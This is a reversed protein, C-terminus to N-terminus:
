LTYIEIDSYIPGNSTLISSKIIFSTIDFELSEVNVTKIFDSFAAYDCIGKIRAITVHTVFPRSEPAFLGSLADDIQKALDVLEPCEVNIFIVKPTKARSKFFDLNSLRAKMPRYEISQLRKKIEPIMSEDVDGLFTLTLHAHQSDVYNGSFLDKQKLLCQIRNIEKKVNEPLEIAIFLRKINDKKGYFKISDM